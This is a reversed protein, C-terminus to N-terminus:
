KVESDDTGTEAQVRAPVGYAVSGPPVDRTVVSGAGTKAGDGIEVPAVLMSDSGIFAGQGIITRHKRKGDYNCTITGAGINAGAGVTADGLYSFHGMKAGPGLHSNKIEGFNGVHAGPGLHAGKRLHGFPGVDSGEEMTAQEVVSLEVRCGDGITSDRIVSGPGITCGCGIRTLGQLFTNPWIVTDAGIEVGAEIYTAEPHVLTVGSWMWHENIRRRMEAEAQALKLRNDVKAVELLGAVPLTAVTEGQRLALAMLDNPRAESGTKSRPRALSPWLWDDRFCLIGSHVQGTTEKGPMTDQANATGLVRGTEPDLVVCSHSAPEEPRFRILTMAAREARHHRVMEHLTTSRILPLDGHLVLITGARGATASEAQLVARATGQQETRTVYTVDAGVAQRIQEDDNGVVVLNAPELAHAADIV